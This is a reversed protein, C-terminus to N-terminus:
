NEKLIQVEWGEIIRQKKDFNVGIGVITKGSAWYKKAYEKKLLQDLAAQASEQHKFEFIYVHTATEVISDAYGKATAVESKVYIGLYKFTLHIFSHYFRESRSDSTEYLNEPLDGLMEELVDRVKELKHEQFATALANILSQSLQKKKKHKLNDLIFAYMSDRIERNPYDIKIKSTFDNRTKITLYGTQLMLATLDINDLSFKDFIILNTEINEFEFHEYEKMLNVLFTPTGTSFWYNRFAKASLFSLTGFPNYVTNVGDWSFGNYWERMLNILQRRSIKFAKAADDIYEKFFFELEKQTYGLMTAYDKHLTIDNLHNLDSFISVKSFKSVGTILVFRLYEEADKLVSYFSKMIEQNERAKPLKDNELFDIIPKDYEDILLVIKGSQEYIGQLIDQFQSKLNEDSVSINYRKASKNLENKIAQALGIENYPMNAFSIHIVPNTKTWDWKDEIWLGKFLTKNGSFLEKLTSILLSKGFRRPRSLFYYWGTTVLRHIDQTKDVYICNDEILGKFTQKGISLLKRM